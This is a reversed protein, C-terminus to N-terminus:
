EKRKKEKKGFNQLNYHGIIKKEQDQHGDPVRIQYSKAV